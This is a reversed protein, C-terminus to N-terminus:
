AFLSLNILYKLLTEKITDPSDKMDHEIWKIVVNWIAGINFAIIYDVQKASFPHFMPHEPSVIQKHIMPIFTNWKQLFLHM